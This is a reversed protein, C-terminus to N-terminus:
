VITRERDSLPSSDVQVDLTERVRRALDASSFPKELFTAGPNLTGHRVVAEDAYGSMFLVRTSPQNRCVEEALERGSTRPMVVDTLLLDIPERAAIELAGEADEPAFVVYGLARLRETVLQRLPAEDEAILITETGTPSPRVAPDTAEPHQDVAAPLYVKFATGHDPESYLWINGGSQRVIGYVTSLGLGTGSGVPKTTFFPEFVHAVTAADMGTGTDSVALMTHLGTSAEPHQSVYDDDLFLTGTEITLKGGDPMADRANVALNVLVQELQTPDALVCEANEDLKAVLDVDEGILRGLMPAIDAVVQNVDVVTPKLVQRRSFALLQRTLQTARDTAAAIQALEDHTDALDREALAETYGGIVTLLNNFDHAIGGALRGIAELRQSQRLQDELHKRETLDRCIAEIGVPQGDEIIVRSAVEVPVRRGDSALLDHAYVTGTRDLDFKDSRAKGLLARDEEPVLSAISM